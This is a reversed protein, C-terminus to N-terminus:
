LSLKSSKTSNSALSAYMSLTTQDVDLAYEVKALFLREMQAIQESGIGELLACYQHLSISRDENFKMALIFSVLFVRHM